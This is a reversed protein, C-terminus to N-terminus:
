RIFHSIIFNTVLPFCSEVNPYEGLEESKAALIQNSNFEQDIFEANGNEYHLIIEDMNGKVFSLKSAIAMSLCFKGDLGYSALVSLKSRLARDGDTTVLTLTDGEVSFEIWALQSNEVNKGTIAFRKHAALAKKLDSKIVCVEIYNKQEYIEESM